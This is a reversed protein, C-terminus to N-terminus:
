VEEKLNFHKTLEELASVEKKMSKLKGPMAGTLIVNHQLCFPLVLEAFNFSISLKHADIILEIGQSLNYGSHYENAFDAVLDQEGVYKIIINKTHIELPHTSFEWETGNLFKDDRILNSILQRRKDALQYEKDRLEQVEGDLIKLAIDIGIIQERTTTHSM